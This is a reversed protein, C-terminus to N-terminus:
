RHPEFAALLAARQRIGMGRVRRSPAIRLSAMLREAKVPGYAPMAAVLDVVKLKALAQDEEAADLVSALSRAGTKLEVKAAARVRRAAAAKELAADRQARDLEPMSM